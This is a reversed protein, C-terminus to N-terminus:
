PATIPHRGFFDALAEALGRPNQVHLLHNAGPLVFPQAAPLWELLLGHREAWVPVQANKEGIVALVPQRIRRADERTFSWQQIAPMEQGFFADADAVAHDFAGPLARELSARYDPDCVGQLFTDVAGAKDGARYKGMAAGVFGRATEASPVTMLAPEMVVLAGVMDPADLALQLAINGSSSHGVLHARPIGLRRLLGRLQAAQQVLSVPGAVRSSGAYGVRHYRVLRHRSALAAEDQFLEFWDAFVGAHILVVPEGSGRTEYELEVGEVVARELGKM